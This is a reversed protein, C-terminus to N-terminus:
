RLDLSGSNGSVCVANEVDRETAGKREGANLTDGDAVRAMNMHCARSAQTTRVAAERVGELVTTLAVVECRKAQVGM